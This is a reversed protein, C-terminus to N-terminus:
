VLAVPRELFRAYRDAEASVAKMEKKTVPRFVRLSITADGPKITRKWCGRLRGDIVLHHPFAVSFAPAAPTSRDLVHGRDRHAVLYEDYNSLLYVGGSSTPAAARQPMCWYTLERQRRDVLTPRVIEVAAKVDRAALGSWWAFDRLTAPGHSAFYRKALTGLAEERPLERARPAREALLAYTFQKGRRPGSCIVADLEAHFMLYALRRRDVVDIGARALVVALQDRTLAVDRELAREIITRSRTFMRDDLGLARYQSASAAHVRPATLALLWRIDAPTVFHWTPRMVHTRLIRGEDFARDVDEDVVGRARLGIAWKAGFYDQAQMAGLWGVVQEPQRFTSRALKQNCLRQATINIM